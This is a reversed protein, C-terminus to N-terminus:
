RVWSTEKWIFFFMFGALIAGLVWRVTQKILTVRQRNRTEQEQTTFNKIDQSLSTNLEQKISEFQVDDFSPVEQDGIESLFQRLQPGSSIQALQQQVQKAESRPQNYQTSLNQNNQRDIRVVSSLGLGILPIYSLCIVISLWSLIKLVIREYKGRNTWGGMFILVFGLLPVVVTEVMAGFFEFEWVPNTFNIPYVSSATDFFAFILLGYGIKPALNQVNSFDYALQLLGDKQPDPINGPSQTM